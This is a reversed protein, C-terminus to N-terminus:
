LPYFHLPFQESSTISETSKEKTKIDIAFNRRLFFTARQLHVRLRSVSYNDKKATEEDLLSERSWLLTQIHLTLAAIMCMTPAMFCLLSLKLHTFLLNTSHNITQLEVSRVCRASLPGQTPELNNRIYKRRLLLNCNILPWTLLHSREMDFDMFTGCATAEFRRFTKQLDTLFSSCPM